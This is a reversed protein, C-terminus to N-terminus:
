AEVNIKVNVTSLVKNGINDSIDFYVFYVGAAQIDTLVTGGSTKIILDTSPVVTIVSNEFDLVTAIIFSSLITKTITGSYDALSLVSGGVYSRNGDVSTLSEGYPVVTDDDTISSTFYIIPEFDDIPPTVNGNNYDDIWQTIKVRAQTADYETQFILLISGVSTEDITLIKGDQVVSNIDALNLYLIPQNFQNTVVLVSSDSDWLAVDTHKLNDFSIPGDTNTDDNQTFFDYYEDIVAVMVELVVASNQNPNHLYLQEIRRESNGTLVMMQAFSFLKNKNSYYSYQIYNDAEFKSKDDYLATIAIFTANDGLGLHNLLYNTQGARLTIRSSLIQQYPFQMGPLTNMKHTMNPGEVAVFSGQYMKIHTQVPGFFRNTSCDGM